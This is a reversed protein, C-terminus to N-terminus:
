QPSRDSTLRQKRAVAVPGAPPLHEIEATWKIAFRDSGIEFIVTDTVVEDPAPPMPFEIIRQVTRPEV